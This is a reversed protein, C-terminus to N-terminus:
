EILQIQSADNGQNLISGVQGFWLKGVQDSPSIKIGLGIGVYFEPLTQVISLLAAVSCIGVCFEPFSPVISVECFEWSQVWRWWLRDKLCSIREEWLSPAGAVPGQWTKVWLQKLQSVCFPPTWWIAGVPIEVSCTVCLFNRVINEGWPIRPIEPRLSTRVELPSLQYIPCRLEECQWNTAPWNLIQLAFDPWTAKCIECNAEEWGFNWVLFWM